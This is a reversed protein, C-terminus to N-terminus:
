DAKALQKQYLAYQVAEYPLGNTFHTSFNDSRMLCFLVEEYLERFSFMAYAALYSMLRQQRFDPHVGVTKAMLTKKQVNPFVREFVPTVLPSCLLTNYIQPCLSM